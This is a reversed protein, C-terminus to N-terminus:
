RVGDLLNEELYGEFLDFLNQSNIQNIQPTNLERRFERRFWRVGDLLYREFVRKLDGSVMSYNQTRNGREWTKACCRREERRELRNQAQVSSLKCWQHTTKKESM